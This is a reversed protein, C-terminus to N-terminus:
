RPSRTTLGDGYMYKRSKRVELDGAGAGLRQQGDGAAGDGRPRDGARARAAGVGLLVDHDGRAQELVLLLAGLVHHEDIEPSVIQTADALVAGDGDLREHRDLGVRVHHM